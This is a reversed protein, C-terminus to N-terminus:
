MARGFSLTKDVARARSDRGLDPAFARVLRLCKEDLVPM